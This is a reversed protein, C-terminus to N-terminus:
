QYTVNITDNELFPGYRKPDNKPLNENESRYKIDVEQDNMEAWEFYDQEGQGDLWEAFTMKAKESPFNIKIQHMKYKFQLRLRQARRCSKLTFIGQFPHFRLYMGIM